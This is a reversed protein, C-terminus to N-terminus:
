EDEGRNGGKIAERLAAVDGEPNLKRFWEVTAETRERKSSGPRARLLVKAELWCERESATWRCWEAVSPVVGALIMQRCAAVFLDHAEGVLPRDVPASEIRKRLTM